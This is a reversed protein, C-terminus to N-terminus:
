CGDATACSSDTFTPRQRRHRGRPGRVRPEGTIYGACALLRLRARLAESPPRSAILIVQPPPRDRQTKRATLPPPAPTRQHNWSSGFAVRGSRGRSAGAPVHRATASGTAERSSLSSHPRARDVVDATHQVHTRPSKARAAALAHQKALRQAHLILGSKDHKPAASLSTACSQTMFSYFGEDPVPLAPRQSRRDPSWPTATSGAGLRVSADPVHVSGGQSAARLLDLGDQAATLAPLDKNRPSSIVAGDVIARADEGSLSAHLRSVARSPLRAAAPSLPGALLLSGECYLAEFLSFSLLLLLFVPKLFYQYKM